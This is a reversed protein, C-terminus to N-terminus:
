ANDGEQWTITSFRDLWWLGNEAFGILSGSGILVPEHESDPKWGMLASRLAKRKKELAVLGKEGTPDNISRIGIVVGFTITTEQLPQGIDPERSNGSPQDSIPTVFGVSARAIPQKMAARVNVATGVDDFHTKIHNKVLLLM